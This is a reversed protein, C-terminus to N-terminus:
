CIKVSKDLIHNFLQKGWEYGVKGGCILDNDYDYKGSLSFLGLSLKDETLTLAVRIDDNLFVRLSGESFCKGLMENDTERIKELVNSTVILNVKGGHDLVEKCVLAFDPHFIPSIGWITKASRLLQISNEHVRHLDVDTPKILVSNEIDGLSRMLKPPITSIDHTLWFEKYKKLVNFTQHNGKCIQAEIIGLSTLKYVGSNKTTLEMEELEKLTHLITTSRTQTEKELDAIKKESELLSLMVNQKLDIKRFTAYSM